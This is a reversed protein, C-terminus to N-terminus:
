NAGPHSREQKRRPDLFITFCYVALIGCGVAILLDTGELQFFQILEAPMDGLAYMFYFLDWVRWLSVAAWTAALLAYYLNAWRRGALSRQSWLFGRIAQLVLYPSFFKAWLTISTGAAGMGGALLEQAFYAPGLNLSDNYVLLLIVTTPFVALSLVLIVIERLIIRFM